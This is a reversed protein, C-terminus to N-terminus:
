NFRLKLFGVKCQAQDLSLDAQTDPCDSWLRRSGCSSVKCGQSYTTYPPMGYPTGM